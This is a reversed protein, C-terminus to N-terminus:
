PCQNSAFAKCNTMDIASVNSFLQGKPRNKVAELGIGLLPIITDPPIDSCKIGPQYAIQYWQQYWGLAPQYYIGAEKAIEHHFWGQRFKNVLFGV